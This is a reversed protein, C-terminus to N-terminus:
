PLGLLINNEIYIDYADTPRMGQLPGSPPRTSLQPPWTIVRGDIQQPDARNETGASWEEVITAQQELGFKRWPQGAPGYHYAAQGAIKAIAARWYYDADSPGNAIQWAHTMEHVLLQGPETYGRDPATHAIGDDFGGGFNVLIDTNDTGPVTFEVGGIGTLNTLLVRDFPLKDGFVLTLYSIEPQHLRRSKVLADGVLEGGLLVPIIVQPGLLVTAGAAAILGLLGGPGPPRVGYIDAFEDGMFIIASLGGTPALLVSTVLFKLWTEVVDEVVGLVGTERAAVDLTMTANRLSPWQAAAMASTIPESWTVDSPKGLDVKGYASGTKQQVIAVKGDASRIVSKVTFDYSKVGYATVTGSFTANGSNDIVLTVEGDLENDSVVRQTFTRSEPALTVTFPLSLVGANANDGANWIISIMSEEVLADPAIAFSLTVPETQQGSLQQSFPTMTVGYPLAGASFSLLKDGGSVVVNVQCTATTNQTGEISGQLATVTVSGPLLTLGLPFRQDYIGDFATVRLGVDYSQGLYIPYHGLAANPAVTVQLPVTSGANPSLHADPAEVTVDGADPAYAAFQVDTAPGISSALTVSFPDSPIGQKVSVRDTLPVASFDTIVARIPIVATQWTTSLLTLTADLEDPVNTSPAAIALEVAVISNPPVVLPADAPGQAGNNWSIWGEKKAEDRMAPPLDLLEDETWENRQPIRVTVQTIQIGTAGGSLTALVTAPPTAWITLTQTLTDGPLCILGLPNQSVTPVATTTGVVAFVPVEITGFTAGALTLTTTNVGVAPLTASISVSVQAKAPVAFPSAPDYDTPQADWYGGAKRAAARLAPPLEDIEQETYHHWVEVIVAVSAITFGDSGSALVATVASDPPVSIVTVSGTGAQGPQADIVVSNPQVVAM